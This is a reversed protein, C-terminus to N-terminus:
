LALQVRDAGEAPVASCILVEDAAVTAAPERLYTVAGAVLKTRCTGCSGERCSFEPSLGRAEALDLERATQLINWDNRELAELVRRKQFDRMEEHLTMPGSESRSQFVHHEELMPSKAGHARIVAHQIAYLLQRTHGPWPAERCAALTRRSTQLFQRLLRVLM